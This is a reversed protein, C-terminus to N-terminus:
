PSVRLAGRPIGLGPPSITSLAHLNWRPKLKPPLIKFFSSKRQRSTLPSRAHAWDVVAGVEDGAALGEEGAALGDAALALEEDGAALGEDGPAVAYSVSRWSKLFTSSAALFSPVTTM